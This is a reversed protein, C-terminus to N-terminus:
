VVAALADEKAAIDAKLTEVTSEAAALNDQLSGIDNSIAARAANAFESGKDAAWTNVIPPLTGRLKSRAVESVDKASDDARRVYLAHWDNGSTDNDRRPVFGKGDGYDTLHMTALVAVNNVTAPHVKSGGEVCDIRVSRNGSDFMYHVFMKGFPTEVQKAEPLDQFERRSQQDSM